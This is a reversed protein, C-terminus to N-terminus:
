KQSMLQDLDRIYRNKHIVEEGLYRHKHSHVGVKVAAYLMTTLAWM